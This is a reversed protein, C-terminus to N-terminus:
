NRDGKWVPSGERQGGYLQRGHAVAAGEYTPMSAAVKARTEADWDAPVQQTKAVMQAQIKEPLSRLDLQYWLTLM